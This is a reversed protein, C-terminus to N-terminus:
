KGRLREFLGNLGGQLAGEVFDKSLQEFVERSVQPQAFTGRIPIQITKGAFASALVPRSVLWEPNIPIALVLDLTDDLGVSGSTTVAVNGIDFQM